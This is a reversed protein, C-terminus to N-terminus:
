KIDKFSGTLLPRQLCANLHLCSTQIGIFVLLHVIEIKSNQAIEVFFVFLTFCETNPQMDADRNNLM